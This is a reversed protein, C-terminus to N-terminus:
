FWRWDYLREELIVKHATASSNPWRVESIVRAGVKAPYAAVTSGVQGCAAQESNGAIKEAGGANQCIVNVYMLRSFQTDGGGFSGGQLYQSSSLYVNSCAVGGCIINSYNWDAAANPFYFSMSTANSSVDIRPFAIPWNNPGKLGADWQSLTLWNSDRTNRAIEIGERALGVATLRDAAVRGARVSTGIAIIVEIMSQGRRNKGISTHGIALRM